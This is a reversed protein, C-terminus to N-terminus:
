GRCRIEHPGATLERTSGDPLELTTPVGTPVQARIVIETGAREWGCEVRGHRTQLAARTWDLGPGPRPALRLRAYGPAAPQIGAVVQYLWDAVAGLAYHNFSTMGSPNLSGDPRLSDWREWITTAGMTVPYLWSPCETQLLLRYAAEIHGTQSLAWTVFPTGAFGTAVHYGGDHVLAALRDGARARLPEDLLGFHIALAYVTPCDSRIVADSDVYHALFAARTRAAVAQYHAAAANDGLRRATEAVFSSSRYLCATAVVGRDAKAALPNDPPATPDLWDGFQFGEDWLGTPSVRASVADVHRCMGPYHAALRDLDGYANWLAQPVWVAADGWIATPGPLDRLPSGPPFKAYKLVDPVIFPILGDAHEAEAAADLLWEHTFDAIDFQFCATAAFAAFDGTWGLREDRQPCDTPVALFNGKQSWVSNSVLQNVLESSCAFTGTPAIDSHVVVADIDEARLPGPLGAVEAYRFGHFTLTPEFVDAGGSCVFTDTAAARRLPGTALEGDALVEAHRVTLETGRPAQVRLRIWGVLNQGFDVVTTGSASVTLTRPAVREHRTISPGLQDVVTARDFEVARVTLPHETGVIRADIRQGQYLNNATTTSAHASWDTDTVVHQRHGDRYEISLQAVFGLDSGYNALADEYGLDGRWWGNGLLVEIETGAGILATVDDHQVRLRWEYSSWGPSLVAPSVPAGGIRVEYAGHATATLVAAAIQEAPRDLELRRHLVIAAARPADATIMTADALPHAVASVM